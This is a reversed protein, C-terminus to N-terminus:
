PEKLVLPLYVGYDFRPVVAGHSYGSEMRFRDSDSMGLLSQGIESDLALDPSAARGGGGDLVYHSLDYRTSVQAGAVGALVLTAALAGLGVLLLRRNAGSRATLSTRIQRM